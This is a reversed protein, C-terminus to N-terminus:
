PEVKQKFGNYDYIIEINNMAEKLDFLEAVIRLTTLDGKLAAERVKFIVDKLIKKVLASSMKDLTEAYEQPIKTMAKSLELIRVHEVKEMLERLMKDAIARQAYNVFKRIEEEVIDEAKKIESKRNAIGRNAVEAVAVIDKYVVLPNVSVKPDVSPPESIDVIILKKSIDGVMDYTIVKSGGGVASIVADVEKLISPLSELSFAKGGVEKALEEARALTRNVVYVQAGKKVLNSAIIRGAMGAGIVAVKLGKLDGVLEELLKVSASPIGTSGKGLATQTRVRKGVRVAAEFTTRLARGSFGERAAREAAERVQRLIDPEGLVMSELGAAVRFLHRLADVGYYVVFKEDPIPVGARAELLSKVSEVTAKKNTTLAYVEVRNCTQLVVVERVAPVRSIASYAALIDPFQAKEMIEKGSAKYNLGVMVLDDVFLPVRATAPM